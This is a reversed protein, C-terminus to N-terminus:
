AYDGCKLVEKGFIKKLYLSFNLLEDNDKFRGARLNGDKDKFVFNNQDYDIEGSPTLEYVGSIEVVGSKIVEVLGAEAADEATFEEIKLDVM